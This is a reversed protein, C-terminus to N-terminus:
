EKQLVIEANQTQGEVVTVGQTKKGLWEQWIEVEYQGAPIGEISYNGNEDTVAYYPEDLVAIYGRMWTHGADCRLKIIGPKALKKNIEMGAIPVAINFATSGDEYFGHANHLVPDSSTLVLTSGTPMAQVTPVFQCGVQDLRGKVSKVEGKAGLVRLVAGSVGGDAGLVIKPIEQHTGCVPVDSTVQIKEAEPPTGKFLVRGKLAGGAFALSPVLAWAVAALIIKKNAKM